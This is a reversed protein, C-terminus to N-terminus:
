GLRPGIEEGLLAVAHLDDSLLHQCMVRSVGAEALTSFQDAAQEVTGVVWGYPPDSVFDSDGAGMWEALRRARDALDAADAGVLVGTMVSFPMPERGVRECAQDIRRKRERIDDLSAFV